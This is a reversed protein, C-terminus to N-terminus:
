QLARIEQMIRYVPQGRYSEQMSQVQEQFPTKDPYIVKTAAGVANLVAGTGRGGCGILGIRIEAEASTAAAHVSPLKGLAAGGALALSTNTLFQRRSQRNHVVSQRVNM